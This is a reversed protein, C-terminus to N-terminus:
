YEPLFKGDGFEKLIHLHSPYNKLASVSMKKFM